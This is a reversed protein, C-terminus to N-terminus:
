SQTKTTAALTHPANQPWGTRDQGGPACRSALPTRAADAAATSDRAPLSVDPPPPGTTPSPLEDPAPEATTEYDKSTIHHVRRLSDSVSVSRTMRSRRPSSAHLHEPEPEPCSTNLSPSSAPAHAGALTPGPRPTNADVGARLQNSLSTVSGRRETGPSPLPKDDAAVIDDNDHTCGTVAVPWDAPRVRLCSGTPTRPIQANEFGCLIDKNGRAPSVMLKASLFCVTM